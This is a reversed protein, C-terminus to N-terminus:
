AVSLSKRAQALTQDMEGGADIHPWAVSGAGTELQADVVAGTADSADGHRAGVRRHLEPAPATLWLGQFRVGAREALSQIAGREAANAFVADVIVSRGAGLAIEAKEVLRSYIRRSTEQTYCSDDLRVTEAVGFLAKRELDSRLHVAGPAAGFLPALAASLTTKGTGSFGGVAVLRAERDRLYDQAHDFDHMAEAQAADADDGEVQRLRQIAVMARIGARCSLFLPLAALGALDEDTGTHFLYRNLLLNAHHRLGRQDLDMILFALDYLTDTTALDDDFEIADFLVPEDDIVVINNLHLDGHCRRVHGQAARRDLRPRIAELVEGARAAFAQARSPPIIDGAAEFVEAVEQIVEAMGSTGDRTRAPTAAAHFKAICEALKHIMADDLAGKRAIASMLGVQDFRRMRVAWEVPTGAGDIALGGDIERTIPVVDRYIMPATRRNVDLERLCMDHRRELTSYDLYPFKVARKIKYASEGALFVLAGHTEISDVADPGDPYSAPDCLFAIVEDQAGNEPDPENHGPNM